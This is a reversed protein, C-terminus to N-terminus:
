WRAFPILQTEKEKQAITLEAVRSQLGASEEAIDLRKQQIALGAADSDVKRKHELLGLGTAAMNGTAREAGQWFGYNPM